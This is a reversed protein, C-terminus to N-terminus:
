CTSAARAGPRRRDSCWRVLSQGLSFFWRQWAVGRGRAVSGCPERASVHRAAHRLRHKRRLRAGVHAVAALAPPREAVRSLVAGGHASVLRRLYRAARGYENRGSEGLLTLARHAREPDPLPLLDLIGLGGTIRRFYPVSGVFDFSNEIGFATLAVATLAARKM